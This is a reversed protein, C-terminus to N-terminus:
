TEYSIEKIKFFFTHCENTNRIQVDITLFAVGNEDIEISQDVIKTAYLGPPLKKKKM